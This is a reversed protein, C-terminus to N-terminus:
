KNAGEIEFSADMRSGAAIKFMAEIEMRSNTTERKEVGFTEGTEPNYKIVVNRFQGDKGKYYGVAEHTPTSSPVESVAEKGMTKAM